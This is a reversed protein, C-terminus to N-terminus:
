QELLETPITLKGLPDPPLIIKGFPDPPMMRSILWSGNEKKVIFEVPSSRIFTEGTIYEGGIEIVGTIKVEELSVEENKREM